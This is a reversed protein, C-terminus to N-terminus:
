TVAPSAPLLVVRTKGGKGFVTIQGADDCASCDRWTLCVSESIRLGAAYVLTLLVKNRPDAELALMRHRAINISRRLYSMLSTLRM